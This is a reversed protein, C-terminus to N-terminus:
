RCDPTACLFFANPVIGGSQVWPRMHNTFQSQSYTIVPAFVRIELVYPSIQRVQFPDLVIWFKPYESIRVPVSALGMMSKAPCRRESFGSSVSGHAVVM